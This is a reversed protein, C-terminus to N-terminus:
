RERQTLNLFNLETLNKNDFKKKEKPNIRLAIVPHFCCPVEKRVPVGIFRWTINTHPGNPGIKDGIGPCRYYAEEIKVKEQVEGLITKEKREQCM